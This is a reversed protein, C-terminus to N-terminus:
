DMGMRLHNVLYLLLSLAVSVVAAAALAWALMVKRKRRSAYGGMGAFLYYREKEKNTKSGIM